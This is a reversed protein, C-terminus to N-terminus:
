QLLSFNAKGQRLYANMLGASIRIRIRIKENSRAEDILNLKADFLSTGILLKV